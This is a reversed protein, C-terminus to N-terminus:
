LRRPRELYEIVLVEVPGRRSELKLEVQEELADRLTPGTLDAAASGPRDPVYQFKFNYDGSLSTNDVVTLGLRRSLDEAFTKMNVKWCTVSGGRGMIQPGHEDGEKWLRLSSGKKTVVLAYEPMQRTERHATLKFRDALLSQLRLKVRRFEEADASRSEGAPAKAHVDYRETVLWAPAGALQHDRVDYAFTVLMQLPVNVADFGGGPARNMSINPDLSTSPKVSAVEFAPM